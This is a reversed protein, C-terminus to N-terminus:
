YPRQPFLVPIIAPERSRREQLIADRPPRGFRRDPGFFSEEAVFPRPAEFCASLKRVITAANVPLTLVDTVGIDRAHEVQERTAVSMIAFIPITPNPMEPNRASTILHTEAKVDASFGEVFMADLKRRFLMEMADIEDSTTHILSLGALKLISKIARQREANRGVLLVDLTKLEAAKM